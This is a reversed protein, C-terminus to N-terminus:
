PVQEVPVGLKKAAARELLGILEPYGAQERRLRAIELATRSRNDKALVDADNELLLQATELNGSEVAVLILPTEGKKNREDVNASYQDLLVQIVDKHDAVAAVHIVANGDPDKYSVKAGEDFAKKLLVLNGSFAASIMLENPDAKKKEVKRAASPLNVRPTAIAVATPASPRSASSAVPVARQRMTGRSREALAGFLGNGKRDIERLYEKLPFREPKRPGGSAGIVSEFGRAVLVVTPDNKLDADKAGFMVEGELGKLKTEAGNRIVVFETGRVGITGEPTRMEFRISGDKNEQKPVLVRVIGSILRHLFRKAANDQSLKYTSNVGVRILTKDDLRIDVATKSDTSLEDEPQLKEGKKLKLTKGARVVSVAESGGVEEITAEAALVEGVGVFLSIVMLILLKHLHRM